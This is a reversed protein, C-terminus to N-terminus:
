HKNRLFPHWLPSKSNERELGKRDKDGAVYDAETSVCTLTGGSKTLMTRFCRKEPPRPLKPFQITAETVEINM